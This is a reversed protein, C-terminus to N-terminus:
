GPTNEEHKKSEKIKKKVSEALELLEQANKSAAETANTGGSMRRIEEVREKQGLPEVLTYTKGERSEKKIYLHNDGYSAIQALHTVCIVQRTLAIIAIKEAMKQATVGGVGTDIEDFVMTPAGFKELLVAKVALAVRSLEGGSAIKALPKPLIGANATFLFELRDLGLQGAQGLEEQRVVLEGQEMALDRMHCTVASTLKKGAKQRLVSLHRGKTWVEEKLAELQKRKQSQKEELNDLATYEAQAKTLYALVDELSGGYKQKLRFLLDLREQYGNLSATDFEDQSLYSGLEQRAEDLSLWATTMNEGVAQLNEDYTAAKEVNQKAITLGALVGAAEEDGNLLQHALSLAEIIKGHNSLKQIKERLKEDEGIVLNAKNIEEITHALQEKDEDQHSYSNELKNLEEQVLKYEHFSEQYSNRLKELEVGGYIDVLLLPTASQLLAQNEHQGHIDVLLEGLRLLVNVPVQRDNVFAQSKGNSLVKRRLFLTDEEVTMDMATLEALIEKQGCIDFVGQVWYFEAGQRLYELSARNGLVVGFADILISKGAGTEGTFVNFGPTFDICVDEILAFNKIQLSTLM